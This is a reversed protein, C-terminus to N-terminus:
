TRKLMDLREMLDLLETDPVAPAPAQQPGAKGAHSASPMEFMVQFGIEEQLQRIMDTADTEEDNDQIDDLLEQSEELKMKQMQFQTLTTTVSRPDTVGSVLALAQTTAQMVSNITTSTESQLLQQELGELTYQINRIHSIGKRARSISM